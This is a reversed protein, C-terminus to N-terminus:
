SIMDRVLADPPDCRSVGSDRMWRMLLDWARAYHWAWPALPNGSLHAMIPRSPNITIDTHGRAIDALALVDPEVNDLGWFPGIRDDDCLADYAVVVDRMAHYWIRYWRAGRSVPLGPRMILLARMLDSVMGTHLTSSYGAFSGMPRDAMLRAAYMADVCCELALTYAPTYDRPDRDLDDLTITDLTTM